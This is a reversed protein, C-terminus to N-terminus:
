SETFIKIIQESIITTCTEHMLHGGSNEIIKSKPFNENIVKKLPRARVWPDEKGLIFTSNTKLQNSKELLDFLNTSAMFKIAGKLHKNQDFIRKYLKKQSLNLESGTSALLNEVLPSNQAILSLLSTLGKSTALPSIWPNLLINYSVPPPVLSPNIGILGKILKPDNQICLEIAVAAGASHGVVLDILDIELVRMLNKLLLAMKSLSYDNLYSEQTFGHGPLDILILDAKDRLTQVINHWSHVAGGTGHILLFVPRLQKEKKEFIQVHWLFNDVYIMKSNKRYPWDPPVQSENPIFTNKYSIM